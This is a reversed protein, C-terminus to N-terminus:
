GHKVTVNFDAARPTAIGFHFVNSNWPVKVDVSEAFGGVDDQETPISTSLVM